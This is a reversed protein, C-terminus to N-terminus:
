RRQGDDAGPECQQNRHRREHMEPMGPAPVAIDFLQAVLGPDDLPPLIGVSVPGGAFRGAHLPFDRQALTITGPVPAGEKLIQVRLRDFLFPRETARPDNAPAVPVTADTDIFLVIQGVPPLVEPAPERCALVLSSVVVLARRM